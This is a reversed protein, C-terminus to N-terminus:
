IQIFSNIEFYISFLLLPIGVLFTINNENEGKGTDKASLLMIIMFCIPLCAPLFLITSVGGSLIFRVADIVVLDLALTIGCLVLAKKMSHTLQEKFCRQIIVVITPVCLFRLSIHLLVSFLFSKVILYLIALIIVVFASVTISVLYKKNTM